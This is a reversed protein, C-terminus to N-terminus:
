APQNRDTANRGARRAPAVAAAAVRGDRKALAISWRTTRSSAPLLGTGSQGLGFVSPQCSHGLTSSRVGTLTMMGVPDSRDLGPGHWPRGLGVKGLERVMGDLFPCAGLCREELPSTGPCSPSARRGLMGGILHHRGRSIDQEAANEDMTFTTGAESSPRRRRRRRRRGKM